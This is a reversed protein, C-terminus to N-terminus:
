DTCHTSFYLTIPQAETDSFSIAFLSPSLQCFSLNEIEMIKQGADLPLEIDTKAFLENLYHDYEYLYTAYETGDIETSLMLIDTDEKRIIQISDSCESQRLKEYFYAVSTRSTYNADMNDVTKSYVDAGFLILVVSSVAFVCFLSLVFFIDIMHKATTNNKM